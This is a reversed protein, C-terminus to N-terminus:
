QQVLLVALGNEHDGVVRWLCFGVKGGNSFGEVIVWYNNVSKCEM